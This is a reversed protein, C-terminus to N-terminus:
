PARELQEISYAAWGSDGKAEWVAEFRSPGRRTITERVPSAGGKTRAEGELRLVDGEWGKGRAVGFTGSSDIIVRVIEGSVPDRGWYDRITLKLEPAHGHGTLWSGDLTPEVTYRLTFTRGTSPDRATARWDGVFYALDHLSAGLPPLPAPKAGGCALVALLIWYRM